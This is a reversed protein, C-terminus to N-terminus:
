EANSIRQTGPSHLYAGRFLSRDVDRTIAWRHLWTIGEPGTYTDDSSYAPDELATDLDIFQYGRQRFSTVLEGLHNANLANAHLLLVQPIERDFLGRSQGEYFEVMRVM